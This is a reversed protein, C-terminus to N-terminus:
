RKGEEKEVFIILERLSRIERLLQEQDREYISRLVYDRSASEHFNHVSAGLEKISAANSLGQDRVPSILYAQVLTLVTAVGAVLSVWGVARKKTGNVYREVQPMDKKILTALELLQDDSFRHHQTPTM